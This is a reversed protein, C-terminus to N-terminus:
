AEVLGSGAYKALCIAEKLAALAVNMGAEQTSLPVKTQKKCSCTIPGGGLM